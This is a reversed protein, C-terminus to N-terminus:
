VLNEMVFILETKFPEEVHHFFGTWEEIPDSNGAGVLAGVVAGITDSDGGTLAARRLADSPSDAYTQAISVALTLTEPAIWGGGLDSCPDYELIDHVSMQKMALGVQGFYPLLDTYGREESIEESRQVVDTLELKENALERVVLSLVVAPPAALPHKHTIEAQLKSLYAVGEDPLNPHLGIWASRMISGSGMSDNELLSSDLPTRMEQAQSYLRMSDMCTNGPARQYINLPSEYWELFARLFEREYSIREEESVNNWDAPPRATIRNLATYTHISMHTDDTVFLEDQFSKDLREHPTEATYGGEQFDEFPFFETSAGWADGLAFGIISNQQRSINM